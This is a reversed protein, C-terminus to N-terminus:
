LGRGTRAEQGLRFLFRFSRWDKRGGGGGGGGGGGEEKRKVGVGVEKLSRGSVLVDSPTFAALLEYNCTQNARMSQLPTPAKSFPSLKSAIM